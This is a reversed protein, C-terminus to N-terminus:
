LHVDVPLLDFQRQLYTRTEASELEVTVFNFRERMQDRLVGPETNPPAKKPKAPVTRQPNSCSEPTKLVAGRMPAGITCPTVRCSKM